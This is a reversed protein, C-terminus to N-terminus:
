NSSHLPGHLLVGHQHARAARDRQDCGQGEHRAHGGGQGRHGPSLFRGPGCGVIRSEAGKESAPVDLSQLERFLRGLAAFGLRGREDTLDVAFPEADRLVLDLGRFPVCGTDLAAVSVGLEGQAHHPQAAVADALVRL